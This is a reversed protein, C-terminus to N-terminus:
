LKIHCKGKLPEDEEKIKKVYKKSKEGPVFITEWNNSEYLDNNTHIIKYKQRMYYSRRKGWQKKFVDHQDIIDIVLPTTHNTRLIRGVSQCVDTKPTAMILTTLTKIDLGESAMAYTGIIVKKQESEKLAAEKMGGIYYGVSAIDRHEISKFLYTILNKNHALIMIQQQPNIELEHKLVKIIFESRHNYLCLKSIMTSYKPNGRYDYEMKNFGENSTIYDIGKVLVQNETKAKRKCIVDGLFMKFVKTLGDKRQMTASLGLTYNTVIKMMCRSFVEASLHHVEDFISLGFKDFMDQPYDKMSLSQLMGIVIDKDEIDVVQGQIKGVRAEPLFQQIREIWQNLLFSKHVVILTKKKLEAIIKLAMVTKGQGPAVEFLGGGTKKQNVFKIYTDIISIQYDRLNGKFTVNIDDGKQIRSEDPDGYNDIGFYLPVYIKNPSERYIPFAEPQVPAKPIYPRVNLEERIFQQEQVSLAEKYISYGKQGLYTSSESSM